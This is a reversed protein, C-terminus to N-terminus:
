PSAPAGVGKVQFYANGLHEEEQDNGAKTERIRLVFWNEDGPSLNLDSYGEPIEWTFARGTTYIVDDVYEFNALQESAFSVQLAEAPLTYIPAADLDGSPEGNPGNTRHISLTLDGSGHLDNEIIFAVAEAFNEAYEGNLDIVNWGAADKQNGDDINIGDDFHRPVRIIPLANEQASADPVCEDNVLEWGSFLEGIAIETGPELRCTALDHESPKIEALPLFATEDNWPFWFALFSQEEVSLLAYPSVRSAVQTKEASRTAIAQAAREEEALDEELSIIRPTPSPEVTEVPACTPLTGLLYIIFISYLTWKKM